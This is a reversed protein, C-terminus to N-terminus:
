WPIMYLIFTIGGSPIGMGESATFLWNDSGTISGDNVFKVIGDEMYSNQGNVHLTNLDLSLVRQPTTCAKFLLALIFLVQIVVVLSLFPHRRMKKIGGSNIINRATQTLKVDKMEM